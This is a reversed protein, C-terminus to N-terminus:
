TRDRATAAVCSLGNSLQVGLLDSPVAGGQVSRADSAASKVFSFLADVRRTRRAEKASDRGGLTAVRREGVGYVRGKLSVARAAGRANGTQFVLDAVRGHGPELAQAAIRPRGVNSVVPKLSWLLAPTFVVKSWSRRGFAYTVRVAPSISSAAVAVGVKAVPPQKATHASGVRAVATRLSVSFINHTVFSETSHTAKIGDIATTAKTIRKRGVCAVVERARASIWVIGDDRNAVNLSPLVSAKGSTTAAVLLRSVRAQFTHPAATTGASLASGTEVICADGSESTAAGKLLGVIAHSWGVFRTLASCIRQAPLTKPADLVLGAHAM